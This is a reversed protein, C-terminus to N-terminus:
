FDKGNQSLTELGVHVLVERGLVTRIGSAFNLCALLGMSINIASYKM